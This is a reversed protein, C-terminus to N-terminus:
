EAAESNERAQYLETLAREFDFENIASLLASGRDGFHTQLVQKQERAYAAADMDGENLLYELRALIITLQEPSVPQRAASTRMPQEYDLANLGAILTGFHTALEAFAMETSKKQCGQRIADLLKAALRAVLNAGILSAAGKLAHGLHECDDRADEALARSIKEMDNAHGNLFLELVQHYKDVNDRVRALGADADLGPIAHLHQSDTVQDPADAPERDGVPTQASAPEAPASPAKTLCPLWKLLMGYLTNPDVPKALFDNMGAEVCRQRDEDFANATMALIPTRGRAHLRRIARTADLGNMEPMQIDMLILDYATIRAKDVAERGNQASDVQLGVGHLLLQAVELNVEVDDAILVKAGSFNRRLEHELSIATDISPNPPIGKGLRLRATFWFTSGKGCESDVGAEGGMLQALKQTIALGLGTGGYKRTTSTDVQEFASFLGSLKEPAIGIGTDESEIRLLVTESTEELLRARLTIEGHETFKVANAAYNLLAQRLRTVDGHLWRPVADLDIVIPLRKERAPNTIMARVAEFVTDLSFDAEELVLKDAEIKSLDLINNILELLHDASAGIKELRDLQKPTPESNRLLHTLGVIANLPTRIEHSMNALFASKALNAAEAQISARELEETRQEVVEELHYRYRDLEEGLRKKETVDEKVAVYHTIEGDLQRIPAMVAFEIFLSGDKRQNHFEGKWPEGHSLASWMRAYTEPPTKGSQLLRPNKSRVEELSYGTHASFAENVYEIRSQADTIVIAEPSQRVAESLMHLTQEIRKRETIDRITATFFVGDSVSWRALSLEIDFEDGDRRLAPLEVTKGGGNSVRYLGARHKEHFRSPMLREVSDGIVENASYGFIREAGPNWTVIRGHQDINVIADTSAQTVAEYRELSNRLAIETELLNENQAQLEAQSTKLQANAVGIAMEHMRRQTIDQATGLLYDLQGDSKRMGRVEAAIFIISGDKRILREDFTVADTEGRVIKSIEAYARQYDEPHTIEQMTKELLEEQTYGTIFCTQENCRLVRRTRFGIIVMGVFPLNFFHQTLQDARAQEVLLSYQQTKERQRWLLFLALMIALNAVLVISGILAITKWMPHLVEDQDIKAVVSWNTGSVPWFAAFVGQGRYDVATVTRPSPDRADDLTPLGPRNVSVPRNVPGQLDQRPVSMYAAEGNRWLLAQESSASATHWNHFYPLISRELTASALIFGTVQGTEQGKQQGEEQGTEASAALPALFFVVAENEQDFSIGSRQVLPASRTFDGVLRMIEEPITPQEGNSFLLRGRADLLSVSKYRYAQRFTRLPSAKDGDQNQRRMAQAFDPNNAAITLNAQREQLWNEILGANLRAIASLDEFTSREIQPSRVAYYLGGLLPVLLFLGIFILFLMVSGSRANTTTAVASPGLNSVTSDSPPLTSVHPM